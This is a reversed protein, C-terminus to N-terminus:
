ICSEMRRECCQKRRLSNESPSPDGRNAVSRGLGTAVGKRIGQRTPLELEKSFEQISHAELGMALVTRINLVVEAARAGADVASNAAAEAFKAVVKAQIVVPVAIAPVICFVLLTLQWSASFSVGLGGVSAM